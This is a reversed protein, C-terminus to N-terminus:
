NKNNGHNVSIGTSFAFLKSGSWVGCETPALDCETADSKPRRQKGSDRKHSVLCLPTLLLTCKNMYQFLQTFYSCHQLWILLIGTIQWLKRHLNDTYFIQWKIAGRYLTCPSSNYDVRDHGHKNANTNGNRDGQTLTKKLHKYRLLWKGCVMWIQFMPAQSPQRLNWLFLGRPEHGPTPNPTM